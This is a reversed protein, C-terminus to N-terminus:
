GRLDAASASRLALGVAGLVEAREALEGTRVEVDDAASRVTAARLAEVLPGSIVAGAAALEGGLVVVEPNLVNCVAGLATGVATGCHALAEVARADGARALALVDAVTRVEPHGIRVRSVVLGSGTVAELCGRRGCRCIPGGPEIRIHGIEGATGGFGAFPRGDVILGAGIGTSLKVYVAHSSGRGSGWMWEALGGINADNDVQVSQGFAESLTEAAALDVWGPLITSDGLHGTALHVPGPIGAGIGVVASRDTGLCALAEDVLARARAVQEVAPLDPEHGVWQEALIEHALDSVAVTLHRKGFDLGVALGASRHLALRTGPRGPGHVAAREGETVLGEAQLGAVLGTVTSPALGASRSLEARSLPGLHLLTNVVRARGDTRVQVGRIM